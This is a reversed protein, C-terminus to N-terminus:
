NTLGYNGTLVYEQFIWYTQSVVSHLGLKPPEPRISWSNKKRISLQLYDKKTRIKQKRVKTLLM